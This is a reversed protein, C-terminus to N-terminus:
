GNIFSSFLWIRFRVLMSAKAWKGTFAYLLALIATAGIKFFEEFWKVLVTSFGSKSVRLAESKGIGRAMKRIYDTKLREDPIAHYVHADPVYHIQRHQKKIRYFLDKEEGSGLYSGKRGLNTHFLGTEELVSRRLAMNAGIPFQKGTFPKPKKGLDLAAVL